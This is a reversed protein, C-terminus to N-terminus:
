PQRLKPREDRHFLIERQPPVSQWNLSKGSSPDIFTVADTIADYYVQYTLQQGSSNTLTYLSSLSPSASLSSSLASELHAWSGATGCFGHVFLIPRSPPSSQAHVSVRASLMLSLLVTFWALQIVAQKSSSVWIQKLSRVSM